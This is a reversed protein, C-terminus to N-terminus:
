QAVLNLKAADIVAQVYVGVDWDTIYPSGTGSWPLGTNLDVGVGPQYYKWAIAAIKQWVSSNITQASELVGPEKTPTIVKSIDQIVQQIGALPNIQTSNTTPNPTSSPPRRYTCKQKTTTPSNPKRQAFICFHFGSNCHYAYM